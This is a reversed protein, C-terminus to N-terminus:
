KPVELFGGAVVKAPTKGWEDDFHEDICMTNVASKVEIPSSTGVLRDSTSNKSTGM